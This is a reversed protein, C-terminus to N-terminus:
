EELRFCSCYTESGKHDSNIYPCSNNMCDKCLRYKHTETENSEIYEVLKKISDNCCSCGNHKLTLIATYISQQM